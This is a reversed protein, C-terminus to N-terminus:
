ATEHVQVLDNVRKEPLRVTFIVGGGERDEFTMAGGHGNVVIDYSTALGYGTRRAASHSATFPEFLDKRISEPIGLGNDEIRIEVHGEKRSTGIRVHPIYSPDFGESRSLVSQFANNLLSLIVHAMERPVVDVTGITPDFKREVKVLREGKEVRFAGQSIALCDSILMHLDTTRREGPRGQAHQLMRKLVVDARQSHHHIKHCAERIESLIPEIRSVEEDGYRERLAALENELDQEFDVITVAFNSIFNLPNKIEHAIGATLRGLSAMKEAHVLQVHADKLNQYAQELETVKAREMALMQESQERVTDYLEEAVKRSRYEEFRSHYILASIGTLLVSLISLYVLQAAIIQDERIFAEPPLLTSFGYFLLAVALTLLLAQGPRFPITGTVALLALTLYAISNSMDGHLLDDWLFAASVILVVVSALLRGAQLTITRRAFAVVSACVVLSFLKDWGVVETMPDAGEYSWVLAKGVILVNASVFALIAFIGLAGSVYLGTRMQTRLVEVFGEDRETESARFYISRFQRFWHRVGSPIPITRRGTTMFVNDAKASPSQHSSNQLNIREVRRKM